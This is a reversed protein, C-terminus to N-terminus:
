MMGMGLGQRAAPRLHALRGHDDQDRAIPLRDTGLSAVHVRFPTRGAPLEQYASPDNRPASRWWEHQRSLVGCSFGVATSAQGPPPRDLPLRTTDYRPRQPRRPAGWTRLVWGGDGYSPAHAPGIPRVISVAGPMFEM